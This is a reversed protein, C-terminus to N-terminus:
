AVVRRRRWAVFGILMSSLLSFVIHSPEPVPNQGGQGCNVCSQYPESFATGYQFVFNSLHASLNANTLGSGTLGALTFYAYNQILPTIGPAYTPFSAPAIGWSPGGLVQCNVSCFNAKGGPPGVLGTATLAYEGGAFYHTQGSSLAWTQGVTLGNPSLISATGLPDPTTTLVPTLSATGPTLNVAGGSSNTIGFLFADLVNSGGIQNMVGTVDNVITVDLASGSSSVELVASASLPNNGTGSSAAAGMNVCVGAGHDAFYTTCFSANALSWPLTLIACLTLTKCFTNM